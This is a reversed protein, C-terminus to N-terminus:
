LGLAVGDTTLHRWPAAPAPAGVRVHDVIAILYNAVTLPSIADEAWQRIKQRDSTPLAGIQIIKGLAQTLTDIDGSPVRYGLYANRLLDSAGCADSVIAPTGEMLAENVVTGWGDYRSPLVLCDASSMLARVETNPLNGLWSIRDSVGLGRSYTKLKIDDPGSGVVKLHWSLRGLRSLADLLLDLGKHPRLEGVFLLECHQSTRLPVNTAGLADVFYGFPLVKELPFGCQCFWDVGLEGTALIFDMRRGWRLAHLGYRLRRLLVKIGDNTQGPEAMVGVQVPLKTASRFTRYTERYAHFGSFIHVDELTNGNALLNDRHARNPAIILEANGYDPRSWGQVKREVSVDEETVVQVKGNWRRAVERLLPAQHISPMNQWFTLTSM